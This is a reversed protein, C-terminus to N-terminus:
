KKVKFALETLYKTVKDVHEGQLEITDDYITGGASVLQKLEKGLKDRMESSIRLGEVITVSKGRRKKRDIYVRVPEGDRQTEGPKRKANKQAAEKTLKESEEASLLNSLQSLDNLKV